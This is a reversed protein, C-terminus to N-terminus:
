HLSVRDSSILAEAGLCVGGLRGLPAATKALSNLVTGRERAEFGSNVLALAPMAAEIEANAFMYLRPGAGPACSDKDMVRTDHPVRAENLRPFFQSTNTLFLSSRATVDSDFRIPCDSILLTDEIQLPGRLRAVGGSPCTLRLKAGPRLIDVTLEAPTITRTTSMLDAFARRASLVSAFDVSSIGPLAAKVVEGILAAGDNILWEPLPAASVSAEAQVCLGAFADRGLLHGKAQVSILADPCPLTEVTRARAISSVRLDWERLGVMGLLLTKEGNGQSPSRALSVRVADPTDGGATFIGTIPDYRGVEVSGPRLADIMHTKGLSTRISQEAVAQPGSMGEPEGLRVAAAVAALDAASQLAAEVRYRNAFDMAFGGVLLVIGILYLMLFTAAGRTDRYFDSLRGLM